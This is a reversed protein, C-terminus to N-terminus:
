ANSTYSSDERNNHRDTETTRLLVVSVTKTKLMEGQRMFETETITEMNSYCVTDPQLNKM